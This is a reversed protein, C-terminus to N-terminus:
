PRNLEFHYNKGTTVSFLGRKGNVGKHVYAYLDSLRNLGLEMVALKMSPFDKVPERTDFYFAKVPTSRDKINRKLIYSKM